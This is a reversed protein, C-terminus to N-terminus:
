EQNWQMSKLKNIKEDVNKNEEKTLEALNAKLILKKQATALKIDIPM